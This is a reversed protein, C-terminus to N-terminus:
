PSISKAGISMPKLRQQKRAGRVQRKALPGHAALHDAVFPGMQLWDDRTAGSLPKSSNPPLWIGACPAAPSSARRRLDVRVKAFNVPNASSMVQTAM